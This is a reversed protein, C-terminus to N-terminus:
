PTSRDSSKRRRGSRALRRSRGRDVAKRQLLEREVLLDEILQIQFQVIYSLRHVHHLLPDPNFFLKVFPRFLRRFLNIVPGWGPRRSFWFAEPDLLWRLQQDAVDKKVDEPLPLQCWQILLRDRVEQRVQSATAQETHREEIQRRIQQVIQVVDVKPGSRRKEM